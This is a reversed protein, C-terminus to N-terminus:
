LCDGWSGLLTSLDAGDVLGDKTLDANPDNTGWAGLMQSLDAGDVKNNGDLDGVCSDGKRNITGVHQLECHFICLYDVTDPMDEPVVWIAGPHFDDLYLAFHTNDETCTDTDGSHASHGGNNWTWRVTDGPSVAITDPIFNVGSQAVEVVTSGENPEVLIMGTMGQKCHNAVSCFYPIETYTANPVVWEATTNSANLDMPAFIPEEFQDCPLGNVVDHTGSNRVWQITDGPRVTVVNPNFTLGEQQVVHTEQAGAAAVMVLISFITPISRMKEFAGLPQRTIDSMRRKKFEPM